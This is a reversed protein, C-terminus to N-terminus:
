RSGRDFLLSLGIGLLWVDKSIGTGAPTPWFSGPKHLAPTRMYMITLGGAFATLGAGAARNSVVPGLLAAGLALEGVSLATLFTKPPLSKFFPYAGAAMGHVAKAHEDEGRNRWKDLGAHAIYVGTILRAPLNPISIRM